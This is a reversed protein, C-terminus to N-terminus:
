AMIKEFKEQMEIYYKFVPKSKDETVRKFYTSINAYCCTKISAQYYPLRNIYSTFDKLQLEKVQPLSTLAKFISALRQGTPLGIDSSLEDVLADFLEEVHESSKLHTALQEMLQPKLPTKNSIIEEIELFDDYTLFHGRFYQNIIDDNNLVKRVFDKAVATKEDDSEKAIYFSKRGLCARRLDEAYTEPTTLRLHKGRRLICNLYSYRYDKKSLAKRFDSFKDYNNAFSVAFLVLVMTFTLLTFLQSTTETMM